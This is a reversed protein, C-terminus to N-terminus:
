GKSRPMLVAITKGGREIVVPSIAHAPRLRIAGGDQEIARLLDIYARGLHVGTPTMFHEGKPLLEGLAFDHIKGSRILDEVARETIEKLPGPKVDVLSADVLLAGDSVWERRDASRGRFTAAFAPMVPLVAAQAARKALPEILADLHVRAQRARATARSMLFVALVLLLGYGLVLLINPVEPGGIQGLAIVTITGLIVTVFVITVALPVLRNGAATARDWAEAEGRM